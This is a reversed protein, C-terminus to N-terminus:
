TSERWMESYLVSFPFSHTLQDPKIPTSYVSLYLIEQTLTPSIQPIIQSQKKNQEQEPPRVYLAATTDSRGESGFVDRRGMAIESWTEKPPFFTYIINYYIM